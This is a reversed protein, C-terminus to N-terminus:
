DGSDESRIAEIEEAIVRPIPLSRWEPPWFRDLPWGDVLEANKWRTYNYHRMLSDTGGVEQFEQISVADPRSPVRIQGVVNRDSREFAWRTASMLFERSLAFTEPLDLEDHDLSDPGSSLGLRLALDKRVTMLVREPSLPFAVIGAAGVGSSETRPSGPGGIPLVPEDTTVLNPHTAAVVWAREFLLRGLMQAGSFAIALAQAAQPSVIIEGDHLASIADHGKRIAEPTAVVGQSEIMRRIGDDDLGETQLKMVENATAQIRQRPRHGRTFQFALFTSVDYRVQPDIREPMAILEDIAGVAPGEVRGLMTEFLLPPVLNPDVDDSEIRYYDTERAAKRPQSLHTKAEDLQHVRVTGQVSWRKLYSSPVLHHKRAQANRRAEDILDAVEAQIRRRRKAM